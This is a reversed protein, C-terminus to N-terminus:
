RAASNRSTILRRRVSGMIRRPRALLLRAVRYPLALVLHAARQTLAKSLRALRVSGVALVYYRPPRNTDSPFDHFSKPPSNMIEEFETESFGLKKIVFTKDRELVDEELPPQQIERLAEDRTMRGDNILCSLHPRRKDAEFKRPLIFGQYFRTYISEHHKGGYPVWGLEKEMFKMAEFKNYEIWNLPSIVEIRKIRPYYVTKHFFRYHPFTKLRKTGFRDNITKIYKWDSHGNSWSLPVMLETVFNGGSVIFRVGERIAAQYLSAVIAHDTPIECDPVSARVFAAQLSRFEEWNLVETYLDIGLIKVISEINRVATETNWGNDLHIALPRLGLDKVMWAVYSSDVGGSLGIVCDYRQGRGEAKVRAVAEKLRAQGSGDAFVYDRMVRDYDHCHHCVGNQDFVIEPDTTDMICRTCIQYRTHTRTSM